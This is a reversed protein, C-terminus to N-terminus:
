WDKEEEFEEEQAKENDNENSDHVNTDCEEFNLLEGTVNDTEDVENRQM